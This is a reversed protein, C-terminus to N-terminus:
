QPRKSEPSATGTVLGRAADAPGTPQIRGEAVGAAYSVPRAVAYIPLGTLMTLASASDKIAKQASGNDAIAAYVSFPASVTSELMSVAPSLSFRDDAPNDNFRNITLQGIQAVGPVMAMLGRATGWGFVAALWDDLYGDDDEDPPGGRFAQAILEAVWINALVGFLAIHFLRGAGKRLGVSDAVQLVATANTNALMNFYSVFQTFTRVFAPGTEFRSVDEPLLSGQTQRVVGDAYRVANTPSMGQEEADNYAATWVVPSIVNDFASQLFYAHRQTWAQGLELYSQDSIIEDVADNMASVDNLMRDRMYISSEAVSRRIEKPNAIFRAVSKMLLSPKKLKVAAIFPGTIQQVTNSLNAFMLAMGSRSRAASALRSVGPDGAIPTEVVQRASRNLWPLLMGSYINPNIRQLTSSVSKATLLRRVDNVAGQMHSFLLVKDLHQGLTRLDLLLPRNYEVRNKAFGSPAAPFAYSMSENELEALQRVENDKVLRTDTQAPVYGGRREVGFPDTFANATVELFYRGFVDRHTKQALPKTEELLDWVGQAFDFHEQTISGEQVMRQIFADWRSTDLTGDPNETAWGRGLLLKRKNSDNGTHLIAHLIEAVAFDNAGGFTYNLEPAAIPGTRMAPLAKVLATLKERYVQRAARYRDAAEKIPQFVYRLFPGGFGGDMREAWSEVRRLAAGLFRLKSAREDADTIASLEGPLTDPVGFDNMRAVLDDELLKRDVLKGDIESQRSRKALNWMSQLEEQLGRLQEVTLEALPMPNNMAANVSPAIAAYTIPDNQRVADLYDLAGKQLRPAVGYAALIARMANVVDPDRGAKVVKENNGKTVKRFFEMAARVDAQAELLAQVAQNNLLQDRKAQIAARSDGKSTAEQWAKGARAEASRHLYVSKKLSKLTRRAALNKGFEKAAALLANVTIPRGRADNRGTNARPNMAESQSKLEAALARARAENHVAENAAAELAEPTALDGHRELMRQDVIGEVVSKMPEAALIAKVLEDGSQFGFMGAVIDPHLGGKAAMGKLADLNPRALMGEPYMEALAETSFRFGKEAKIEEGAENTMEGKRLWRMARYISRQSVEAVVEAAIGKRLDQAEKTFLKLFKSRANLTWKLARMSRAQLREIAENTADVNPLLGAQEEARQIQEDTALMRGFVQRIEDNVQLNRGAMFDTLSRYVNMLWARFQRFLSQLETSPAKGELLYQEFAEAWKEHHERKQDLTYTNWTALDPVGFWALARNMDDVVQQPADPQSALDAMVELFFHGSEHLFTSLDASEGLSILLTQPNFTGRPGQALLGSGETGPANGGLVDGDPEGSSTERLQRDANELGQRVSQGSWQSGRFDGTAKESTGITLADIKEQYEVSFAVQTDYWFQGAFSVGEVSALVQEALGALEEAKTSMRAALAVDDLGSLDDMGYRQEFEPVYQLRVGVAAPMEGAMTSALRRGDVIVTLFEVGEKALDALVVDLNKADAASRFYIEVGPRHRLPDVDENARLVRSLFTSDQRAEQAQRLMELWLTNADYGERAVVELDLSREVGGYRGETSLAKSGLVTNGDDAAYVAQRIADALRAMDADAPVFDVGQTDMSMQISLGGVFRDVERELSTLEAKAAAKRANFAELRAKARDVNGLLRTAEVPPRAIKALEGMRTKSGKYPPIEGTQLKRLEEIEVAHEREHDEIAKLAASTDQGAAIVDSTPPSADIISRLEKVRDQQSTGTLNAELEFSGGEGAANTWNNVTWLEKEIFWVVAQLDDDNIEALIPDTNLENDARIRKVSESFVDQGMGFQLTTSADERMEGSVGTEAVSPIRRRGALRQLMRAAWVDITARERFGILNGSFNLAKPATGGRAIDPDSNKVVRWLDVMARAVNRGNFGYKAGSEKKPLLADPFKRAERLASLKEQYEPLDKVAKKSLGEAMQENFWSRLDTELADVRDFYAEWQIILNDFDGRSARRLADVANFWNDRVPTNPSTAGLLDAFLDGLGGFEQRLRKRLAKYWGAQALINRANANGAAARRFVTRVEEAMSRAVANVRRKYNATGPELSKGDADTSFQYSITKYEHTVKRDGTTDDVVTRSYTLPEWGQAVPHALKTKTVAAEIEAVPVGTAASSSQIAAREEASIMVRNATQRVGRKAVMQLRQVASQRLINPDNPDFAGSNGTAPVFRQGDWLRLAEPPIDGKVRMGGDTYPDPELRDQLAALDVSFYADPIAGAEDWGLDPNRTQRAERMVRESDADLGNAWLYVYGDSAARLGDRLIAPANVDDAIHLAQGDVGSDIFDNLTPEPASENLVAGQGAQAGVKLSFQEYLQTPTMGTRSAMTSFFASQLRAYAENADSTFRGAQDLQAKITDRVTDVESQWASQDQAQQLVREAEQEIFQQGQEAIQSAEALSWANESTRANQLFLEELPTGPIAALVEGLPLEVVTNLALADEMQAAASPFSQAIDIGSQALVEADMFISETAGERQALDQMASAFDQPAHARMQVMSAAAFVNQLQRASAEAQGMQDATGAIKNLTAVAGGTILSQTLTSVLTDYAAGPREAFFEPWTKDPNAVATDIADQLFTAVQETPVERAILGALFEGVGRKGLSDTLFKTPLLETAVEVAGEGTAGLFSELPAGGRTRYKGYAEAQTQVGMTALMPTPSRTAISAALGPLTRLTSEVGGYIARGTRSEINPRTFDSASQSQAIKRALDADEVPDPQVLGAWQLFDRMQGQMGRRAMELGQPMSAALGRAINEFTPEPGKFAKITGHVDVLASADKQAKAAFLPAYRFYDGILPDVELARATEAVSSERKLQDFNRLAVDPPLGTAFALQSAQSARLADTGMARRIQARLLADDSPAASTPDFTPSAALPEATSPDFSM